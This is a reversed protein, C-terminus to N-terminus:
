LSPLLSSKIKHLEGSIMAFTVVLSGPRYLKGVSWKNMSKCITIFNLLVVFNRRLVKWKLFASKSPRRFKRGHTGKSIGSESSFVSRDQPFQFFREQCTHVFENGGLNDFVTIRLRPNVSFYPVHNPFFISSEAYVSLFFRDITFALEMQYTLFDLVDHCGFVSLIQGLNSVRKNLTGLIKPTVVLGYKTM